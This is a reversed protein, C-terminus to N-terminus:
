TSRRGSVKRSCDFATKIGDGLPLIWRVHLNLDAGLPKGLPRNSSGICHHPCHSGYRLVPDVDSRRTRTARAIQKRGFFENPIVDPLLGM